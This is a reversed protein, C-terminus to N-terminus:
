MSELATEKDKNGIKTKEKAVPVPLTWWPLMCSFYHVLSDSEMESRSNLAELGVVDEPGKVRRGVDQM